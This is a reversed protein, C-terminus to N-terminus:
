NEIARFHKQTELVDREIQAKLEDVGSFKMESRIFKYFEVRVRKGYLDGSYNLIYSEVTVQDHGGVTPRVGVNTVAMYEMDDIFVKAAYVGYAPVLVGEEFVMNITPAGITRGLKYGYRVTDVLTHPHGLFMNAREIDGNAICKRIFTSGVRTGELTVEAIIDCGLGLSRCKEMLRQPTGQGKYGFHFDDGVVLHVAGFESQLCCVFDEWPMERMEEDFHIVLVDKIGFLREIIDVRDAASNILALPNGSVLVEPHTDFTLVAPAADLEQAREKAKNILAAHGIHVGDFFGLAIVRKLMNRGVKL